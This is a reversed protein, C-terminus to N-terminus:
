HSIGQGIYLLVLFRIAGAFIGGGASARGHEANSFLLLMQHRVCRQDLADHALEIRLHRAGDVAVVHFLNAQHAQEFGQAAVAHRVLREAAIGAQADAAGDEVFQPALQELWDAKKGKPQIPEDEGEPPLCFVQLLGFLLMIEPFIMSVRISVAAHALYSVLALTVPAVGPRLWNQAAKRLHVAVFWVWAAVAAGLAAGWASGQWWGIAGGLLQWFLFILFRLVM